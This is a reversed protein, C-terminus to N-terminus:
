VERIWLNNTPDCRIRCVADAAVTTSGVITSSSTLTLTYTSDQNALIYTVPVVFTADNAAPLTVTIAGTGDFHYVTDTLSATVTTNTTQVTVEGDSDDHQTWPVTQTNDPPVKFFDLVHRPEWDKDCVYVGDWRKKLQDAKYRFGCVACISNWTGSKFYAGM